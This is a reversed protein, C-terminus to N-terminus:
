KTPPRPGPRPKPMWREWYPQGLEERVEEKQNVTVGCQKVENPLVPSALNVRNQVLVQAMNMDTGHRFTVTLRYSGDNAGRRHCPCWTRSVMSRSSSRRLWVTKWSRLVPAPYFATVEVTPQSKIPSGVFWPWLIFYGVVIFLVFGLGALSGLLIVWHKLTM